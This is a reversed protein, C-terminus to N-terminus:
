KSPWFREAPQNIIKHCFFLGTKIFRIAYSMPHSITFNLGLIYMFLLKYDNVTNLLSFIRKLMSSVFCFIDATKYITSNRKYEKTLLADLKRSIIVRVYLHIYCM